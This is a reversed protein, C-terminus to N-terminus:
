SKRSQPLWSSRACSSARMSNQTSSWRTSCELARTARETMRGLSGSARRYAARHRRAPRPCPRNARNRTGGHRRIWSGQDEHSRRCRGHDHRWRSARPRGVRPWPRCRRGGSGWRRIRSFRRWVLGSDCESRRCREANFDSHWHKCVCVYFCGLPGQRHQAGAGVASALGIVGTTVNEVSAVYKPINPVRIRVGDVKKFNLRKVLHENRELWDAFRGVTEKHARDSIRWVGPGSTGHGGSHGRMRRDRRRLAEPRRRIQRGKVTDVAGKVGAGIAVAAAASLPVLLKGGAQGIKPIDKLGVHGPM